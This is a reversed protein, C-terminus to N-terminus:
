PRNQALAVLYTRGGLSHEQLEISWGQALHESGCLRRLAIGAGGNPGFEVQDMGM